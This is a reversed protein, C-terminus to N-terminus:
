PMNSTPLDLFPLSLPFYKAQSLAQLRAVNSQSRLSSKLPLEDIYFMNTVENIKEAFRSRKIYVIHCM